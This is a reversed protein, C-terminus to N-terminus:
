ALLLILVSISMGVIIAVKRQGEVGKTAVTGSQAAATPQGAPPQGASVETWLDLEFNPLFRTLEVYLKLFWRV